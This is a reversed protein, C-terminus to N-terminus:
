TEVEFMQIVIVGLKVLLLAKSFYSLGLVASVDILMEIQCKLLSSLTQLCQEAALGGYESM